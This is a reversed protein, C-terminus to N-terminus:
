RKLIVFSSGERYSQSSYIEEFEFQKLFKLHVPNHYIIFDNQCNNNSFFNELVKNNFPNYLFFINNKTSIKFNNADKNKVKVNTIKLKKLNKISINYLYKDIEIGTISSHEKLIKSWCILVKGKGSGLDYFNYDEINGNLLEILKNTSKKIDKSFSAMYIENEKHNVFNTNWNHTDTSHIFDFLQNYFFYEIVLKIGRSKYM